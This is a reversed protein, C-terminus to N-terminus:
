ARAPKYVPLPSEVSDRACRQLRFGSARLAAIGALLWSLLVAHHIGRAALAPDIPVLPLQLWRAIAIVHVAAIGATFGGALLLNLWAARPEQYCTIVTSVILLNCGAHLAIWFLEDRSLRWDEFDHPFHGRTAALLIAAASMVILLDLISFQWKRRDAGAPHALSVVRIGFQRALAFLALSGLWLITSTAHQSVVNWPYEPHYLRHWLMIVAILTSASVALRTLPKGAGWVVWAAAFVLLAAGTGRAAFLWNTLTEDGSILSDERSLSAVSGTLTLAAAAVLLVAPAHRLKGGALPWTWM